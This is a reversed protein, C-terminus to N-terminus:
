DLVLNKFNGSSLSLTVWSKLGSSGASFFSVVEQHNKIPINRSTIDIIPPEEIPAIALKMGTYVENALFAQREPKTAVIKVTGAKISYKIRLFYFDYLSIIVPLCYIKM